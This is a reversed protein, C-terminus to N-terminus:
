NREGIGQSLPALLHENSTYFKPKLKHQLKQM